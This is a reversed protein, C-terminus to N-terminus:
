TNLVAKLISRFRTYNDSEDALAVLHAALILAKERTMQVTAMPVLVCIEDGRAGVGAFNLLDGQFQPILEEDPM